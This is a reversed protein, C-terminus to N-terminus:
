SDRHLEYQENMDSNLFANIEHILLWDIVRPINKVHFSLSIRSSVILVLVFLHVPVGPRYSTLIFM